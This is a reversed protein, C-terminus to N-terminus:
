EQIDFGIQVLTINYGVNNRKALPVSFEHDKAYKM